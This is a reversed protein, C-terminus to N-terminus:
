GRRPLEGYPAAGLGLNMLDLPLDAVGVLPLQVHELVVAHQRGGARTKSAM